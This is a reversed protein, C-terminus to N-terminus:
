WRAKRDRVDVHVFAGHAATPRYKGMGGILTQHEPDNSAADFLRYLVDADGVDHRGDGNLDDMVGDRDEDVFIDAAAGWTHRSYPVNGLARNYAPTRYGSMIHFTSVNYGAANVRELLYELKNLLRDDLVVYKPYGGAQKCLFQGLRFHPSVFADRNARTVEIFGRPPNRPYRGIRYGNVHEGKAPNFPVLVFANITISDRADAAIVQIPYLGPTTPATWTWGGKGDGALRGARARAMSAPAEFTVSQGPLVTLTTVPGSALRNGHRVVFDGGAGGAVPTTGLLTAFYLVALLRM